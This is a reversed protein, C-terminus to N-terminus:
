GIDFNLAHLAAHIADDSAMGIAYERGENAPVRSIHPLVHPTTRGCPCADWSLEVIDASVVGGWYTQPVLDMFAARGKQRGKRPLPTGSAPDLIIPVVWPPIHFVGQSCANFASLIETMGYGAGGIRKSGTFRLIATEMNEPEPFGKLGGISRVISGPALGPEMGLALGESALRFINLPGGILVCKTSALGYRITELLFRTRDDHTRHFMAAEEIKTQVYENPEPPPRRRERATDVQLMYIQWDSSLHTPILPYFMAPNAAVTERWVAAGKLIGSRGGAYSPWIVAFDSKEKGAMDIPDVWEAIGMRFIAHQRAIDAKGRPYLSLAGTTGSSHTIDVDSEAEIADMWGDITDFSRGALPSLDGVTLRSLWETLAQYRGEYIWQQPFSKYFSHPFFVPAADEVRDIESLRAADALAKLPPIADRMAAFRTRLADLQLEEQQEWPLYHAIHSDNGFYEAPDDAFAAM